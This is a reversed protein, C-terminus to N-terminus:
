QHILFRVDAGQNVDM